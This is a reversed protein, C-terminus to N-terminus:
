SATWRTKSKQEHLVGKM